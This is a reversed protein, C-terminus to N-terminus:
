QAELKSKVLAISKATQADPNKIALFQEMAATYHERAKATDGETESRLGEKAFADGADTLLRTRTLGVDRFGQPDQEAETLGQLALHAAPLYDGKGILRPIQSYLSNREEDLTDDREKKLRDLSIGDRTKWGRAEFLRLLSDYRQRATPCSMYKLIICARQLGNAVGYTALLRYDDSNGEALADYAPEFYGITRDPFDDNIYRDGDKVYRWTLETPRHCVFFQFTVRRRQILLLAPVRVTRPVYDTAAEGSLQFECATGRELALQGSYSYSGPSRRRLAVPPNGDCHLEVGVDALRASPVLKIGIDLALSTASAAGPPLALTATALM